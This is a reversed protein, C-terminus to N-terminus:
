KIWGEEKFKKQLEEAITEATRKASGEIKTRGSLEGELKVGGMVALGIPNATAVLVAVPLILGPTKGGGSELQGSGLLRPGTKTMQYGEVATTLKTSGSGFGLTLRKATSGEEVAGFYGIIMLDNPQPLSQQSGELAVLGMEEIKTVLEKAVLEGMNRGVELEEPTPPKSAQAFRNAATSWSPIDDHTAAFPYVYIRDPKAVKETGIKSDRQTVKTSACGVAMVLALMCVAIRAFSKM